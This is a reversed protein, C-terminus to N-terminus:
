SNRKKMLCLWASPPASQDSDFHIAKLYQIEFLPEVYGAIQLASLKPPGMERPPGDASGIMSLWLGESELVAHVKMVVAVRETDTEPSHFCGRDFVFGFPGGPLLSQCIDIEVFNIKVEARAAKERAEILALLSVDVATTNFGQSALWIANTGTGCGLELAECPAIPHQALFAELNSDHRGTDWPADKSAYRAEWKEKCGNM